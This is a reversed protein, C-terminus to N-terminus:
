KREGNYTKMTHQKPASSESEKMVMRRTNSQLAAKVKKAVM